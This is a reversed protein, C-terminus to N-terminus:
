PRLEFSADYLNILQKHGGSGCVRVQLFYRKGPRLLKLAAERDTAELQGAGTPVVWTAGSADIFAISLPTTRAPDTRVASLKVTGIFQQCGSDIENWMPSMNVMGAVTMGMHTVGSKTYITKSVSILSPGVTDGALAITSFGGMLLVLFASARTAPGMVITPVNLHVSSLNLLKISKDFSAVPYM